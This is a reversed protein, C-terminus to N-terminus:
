KKRAEIRKYQNTLADFERELESFTMRDLDTNEVKEGLERIFGEAKRIRAIIEARANDPSDSENSSAGYQIPKWERKYFLTEGTKNQGFTTEHKQPTGLCVLGYFDFGQPQRHSFVVSAGCIDCQTPLGQWFAIRSISEKDDKADFSIELDSSLNLKINM